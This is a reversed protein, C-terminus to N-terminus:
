EIILRRVLRARLKYSAYYYYQNGGSFSQYFASESYAIHRTSTWYWSPEFAEAGGDQFLEAQTQLPFNPTHPCTPEVASLNLGSRMWCYNLNATPKLNRYIIELEDQSPLYWDTEGNINAARAWMALESGAEAMAVTNAMGDNYSTAGDFNVGVPMWITPEHEGEAKPAVILVYVNGDDLRIRGAYYGGSTPTGIITTDPANM